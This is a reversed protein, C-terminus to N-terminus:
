VPSLEDAPPALIPLHRMENVSVFVHRGTVPVTENEAVDEPAINNGLSERVVRFCM